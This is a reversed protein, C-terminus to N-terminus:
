GEEIEGRMIICHRAWYRVELRSETWTQLLEQHTADSGEEQGKVGGGGWSDGKLRGEVESRGGIGRDEEKEERAKEEGEEEEEEEEVAAAVVVVVVVYEGRGGVGHM